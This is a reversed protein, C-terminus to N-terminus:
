RVPACNRLVSRPHFLAPMRRRMTPDAVDQAVTTRSLTSAAPRDLRYDTRTLDWALVIGPPQSPRAAWVAIGHRTCRATMPADGGARSEVPLLPRGHATVEAVRHRLPDFMFLHLARGGAPHHRGRYVTVRTGPGLRLDRASSQVLDARQSHPLPPRGTQTMEHTGCGSLLALLVLALPTLRRTLM